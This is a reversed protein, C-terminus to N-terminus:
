YTHVDDPMLEIRLSELFGEMAFKSASYATRAPLGKKGAISSIGVISGKTKKLHPLAYKTIFVTGWFNIDIVQKFAELDIDDFLSRMSIGENNVLVDLQGYKAITEEVVRIAEQEVSADSAIAIVERVGIDRLNKVAEDLKSQNRGTIVVKSGRLGYYEACSYGIGSSGGTVIVVKGKM